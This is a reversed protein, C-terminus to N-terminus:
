HPTPPIVVTNIPQVSAGAAYAYSCAESFVSAKNTGWGWVTLGFPVDSHAANRGNDCNGVKAFDGTQVDARTFQYNGAADVNQWGTLVGACDLTVDHFQNDSGKKRVFVLNTEPYTPDTFFIYNALYQDPPIVDVFEPDGACGVPSSYNGPLSFCGTMHAGFFFPHLADQSRVVYPGKADWEVMQGQSLTTPAGTQPPDYTLTTGDVAGVFRWPPAEDYTSLRNRYRSAVYEHGLAKVPPIQQHMGDCAPQELNTCGHGGWSGIPYNSQVVSGTLDNPQQLRLLQGTNLTYTALTNKAAAAVGTGGVIANTPVISITTNDQQAVFAIWPNGFGTESWAATTIYNNDWASTPLLLTASAVASSGGGYPFIDYLVVPRDATIHFASTVQTGAASTDTATAVAEPCGAGSMFLIAVADVPVQGNTIATYTLNKGSGSPLYAFKSLNSTFNQTGWSATLTVPSGWTNAVYVAFCTQTYDTAPVAYYDCGVSSKNAKAADCAAVCAGAACGEDPPCATVVNNNCDVVNHLDGSCTVGCSGGDKSGTDGFTPGGDNAGQGDQVTADGGGGDDGDCNSGFNCNGSSGCSVALAACAFAAVALFAFRM